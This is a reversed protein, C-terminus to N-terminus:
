SPTVFHLMSKPPLAIIKPLAHRLNLHQIIYCHLQLTDFFFLNIFLAIFLSFWTVLVFNYVFLAVEEVAVRVGWRCGVGCWGLIWWLWTEGCMMGMHKWYSVLAALIDCLLSIIEYICM